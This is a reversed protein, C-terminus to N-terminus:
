FADQVSWAQAPESFLAKAESWVGKFLESNRYNELDQESNWLSYSFFTSPNQKDELINVQTCGESSLIKNRITKVLSVFNEIETDKIQM